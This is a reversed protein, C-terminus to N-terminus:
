TYLDAFLYDGYDTPQGKIVRSIKVKIRYSKNSNITFIAEQFRDM